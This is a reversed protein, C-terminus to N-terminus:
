AYEGDTWEPDELLCARLESYAEHQDPDNSNAEYSARDEFIAVGILENTMNDPIMLYAAIAGKIGQNTREKFLTIVHDQQGPKVKMRFITGYM